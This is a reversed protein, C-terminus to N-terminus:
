EIRRGSMWLQDAQPLRAEFADVKGSEDRTFEFFVMGGFNNAPVGNILEVPYLVQEAQPFFALDHPASYPGIDMWSHLFGDEYALEVEVKGEYITFPPIKVVDVEYRGVYAQAAEATINEMPTPEVHIDVDVATTGWHLRLTTGSGDEFVTPFHFTLTELDMPVERPTVPIAIELEDMAPHPGHFREWTEDLGIQWEEASDFAVWVSYKGAPVPTEGIVVDKSLELTTAMNAGPTIIDGYPMVGGFLPARGRQSPRSYDITIVTGDVTQSITSRESAVVQATAPCAALLALAFMAAFPPIAGPGITKM